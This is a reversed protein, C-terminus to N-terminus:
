TAAVHTPRVPQLIVDCFPYVLMCRLVGDTAYVVDQRSCLMMVFHVADNLGEGMMFVHTCAKM